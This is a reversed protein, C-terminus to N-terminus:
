QRGKGLRIVAFTATAQFPVLFSTSLPLLRAAAPEGALEERGSGAAPRAPEARVSQEASLFKGCFIHGPPARVLCRRMKEKCLAGKKYADGQGCFLRPRTHITDPEPRRQQFSVQACACVTFCTRKQLDWGIKSQTNSSKPLSRQQLASFSLPLDRSAPFPACHCSLYIDKVSSHPGPAARSSPFSPTLHKPFPCCANLSLSPVPSFSREIQPAYIGKPFTSTPYVQDINLLKIPSFCFTSLLLSRFLMPSWSEESQIPGAADWLKRPLWNPLLVADPQTAWALAASPPLLQSEKHELGM